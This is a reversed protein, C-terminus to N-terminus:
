YHMLSSIIKNLLDVVM